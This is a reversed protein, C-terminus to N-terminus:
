FIKELKMCTDNLLSYNYILSNGTLTVQRLQDFYLKLDPEEDGDTISTLVNAEMEYKEGLAAVTARLEDRKKILELREKFSLM